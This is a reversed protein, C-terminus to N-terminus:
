QLLVRQYYKILGIAGVGVVTLLWSSPEPIVATFTMHSTGDEFFLTGGSTAVASHWQLLSGPGSIPGIGSLMDWTAFEPNTPGHILDGPRSFGSLSYFHNVFTRTEILFAFSGVGSISLSSSNHDIHWGQSFSVRDDTDGAGTIIFAANTFPMGSLTGTGTGTHTFTIPAGFASVAFAMGWLQWNRM